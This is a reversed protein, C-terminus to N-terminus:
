WGLYALPLRWYKSTPLVRFKQHIPVSERRTIEQSNNLIRANLEGYVDICARIATRSDPAFAHLDLTAEHYHHRAAYGLGRIVKAIGSHQSPESTNLEEIGEMRLMDVPLYQRGRHQDEAVDRIFNTLQLAIGLHRAAKLARDFCDPRTSGYVHTLFYGVVIASGYIYSDILDDLSQFHRPSIDIEMANLFARYHDAPIQNERMVQVFAAIFCPVGEAVMERVGTLKLAREYDGRWTALRLARAESDLPFSDVIEDPYRVAAYIAEVMSRKAVPLFRTVAFFSTSYMKLVSRAERVIQRFAVEDSRCARVRHRLDLEVRKWDQEGWCGTNTNRNWTLIFQKVEAGETKIWKCNLKFPVQAASRRGVRNCTPLSLESLPQPTSPHM